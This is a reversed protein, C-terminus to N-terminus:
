EDDDDKRAKMVFFIILIIPALLLLVVISVVFLTNQMDEFKFIFDEVKCVVKSFGTMDKCLDVVVKAKEVGGKKTTKKTKQRRKDGTAAWPLDELLLVEAM